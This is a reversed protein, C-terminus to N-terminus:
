DTIEVSKDQQKRILAYGLEYRSKEDEVVEADIASDNQHRMHASNHLPYWQDTSQMGRLSLRKKAYFARRFDSTFDAPIGLPRKTKLEENDPILWLRLLSPTVGCCQAVEKFGLGDYATRCLDVLMDATFMHGNTRKVDSYWAPLRHRTAYWPKKTKRKRM